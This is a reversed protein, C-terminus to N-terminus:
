SEPFWRYGDRLVPAGCSPCETGFLCNRANDTEREDYHVIAGCVCPYIVIDAAPKHCIFCLSEAKDSAAVGIVTSVHQAVFFTKRDGEITTAQILDGEQLAVLHTMRDGNVRLPRGPPAAYLLAVESGGGVPELAGACSGNAPKQVCQWPREQSPGVLHSVGSPVIVAGDGPAQSDSQADLLHFRRISEATQPM